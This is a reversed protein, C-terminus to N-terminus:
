ASAGPPPPLFQSVTRLLEDLDFPKALYGDADIQAARAAADQAASLVVISAHPGPSSRYARALEWGDMIPMRMDLLILDPQESALRELAARGHEAMVVRYGEDALVMSVVTRIAEDDDVVLITPPAPHGAQQRHQALALSGPSPSRM